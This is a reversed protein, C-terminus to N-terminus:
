GDQKEKPVRTERREWRFRREQTLATQRAIAREHSEPFVPAQDQEQSLHRALASVTPYRTMEVLSVDRDFADQLKSQIQVLLLSHGGLDFFNDHVGVKEVILVDRWIAEITLEAATRPALHAETPEARREEPAPLARHDVKGNPTLPLADLFVFVSPVMYGPLHEKLFARLNATSTEEAKSVVYAVLRNDGQVDRRAVVAAQLVAPHRTLAAEVEGLEIRYGRIKVQHDARGLYEVNGDPLYRGLDGTRYLRAGVRRSCADPIFQSATMDPRNLYGRALGVGGIYIDGPVGVPVPHLDRNLLYLQTNAIPRGISIEPNSEICQMLTACVTGETPGYANFFRRGPAWRAVLDPTCAEGAVIMTSLEPLRDNPLRALVSPSIVIHTMGRDCLLRALRPGPLVTDESILYLTAGAHMAGFIELVSADFSLSSLQLVHSDPGVDFVAALAASMNSLGRHSIMTGKPQGTSGSTYIVYALNDAGADSRVAGCYQRSLVDSWETDLCITRAVPNRVAAAARASTLLVRVGADRLMFALRAEPYSPDLPVYAGGAKLIGALAVLMDISREVCLGVLVERRVGLTRLYNALQNSRRNLEAYTLQQEEFVIAVRDPCRRAHARLVDVISGQDAYEARTDNWVNIVEHREQASLLSVASLQQEPDAVISELVTQFHGLMRTVTAPEFRRPNYSMRVLWAPGPAIVLNLPYNTREISTADGFTLSCRGDSSASGAPYNEFVVISEFLPQGRPVESWGHIKVLPAYDYQRAEVQQAQLAGLWALLQGDAPLRVRLPLTNIFLGVMTEIGALAAPRGSVTTGIVVDDEGSYCRLVLAWAGLALTNLTLHGRQALAELQRAMSSSLRISGDAYRDAQDLSRQPSREPYLPTPGAFGKLITRWYREAASLDQSRVWKVYDAYPRVPPLSADRGSCNAAYCALVENMLVALSWGDLLAHHFTLVLRYRVPALTILTLRLLPARNLDFGRKRDEEVFAQLRLEQARAPLQQWDSDQWWVEVHERVIQVPENLREWVFMTRLAAHRDIMMQWALRLAPANIPGDLVYSLQVLYAGSHPAYLTHFLIGQQMPSLRYIAEINDKGM